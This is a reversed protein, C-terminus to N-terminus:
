AAFFQALAAEGALLDLIRCVSPRSGDTTEARHMPSAEQLNRVRSMWSTHCNAAHHAVRFTGRTGRQRTGPIDQENALTGLSAAALVLRTYAGRSARARFYEYQYVNENANPNEAGM